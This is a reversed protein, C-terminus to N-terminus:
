DFIEGGTNGDSGGPVISTTIVDQVAFDVINIMPEIFAKM